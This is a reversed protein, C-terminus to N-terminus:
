LAGDVGMMFTEASLRAFTLYPRSKTLWKYLRM